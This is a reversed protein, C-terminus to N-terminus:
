KMRSSVPFSKLKAQIRVTEDVVHTGVLTVRSSIFNFWCLQIVHCDRAHPTHKGCQEKRQRSETTWDPNIAPPFSVCSPLCVTNKVATFRTVSEGYSSDYSTVFGRSTWYLLLYLTNWSATYESSQSKPLRIGVCDNEVVRFWGITKFFLHIGSSFLNQVWFNEVGVDVPQFNNQLIGPLSLAFIITLMSSDCPSKHVVYSLRFWFYVKSDLTNWKSCDLSTFVISYSHDSSQHSLDLWLISFTSHKPNHSIERTYLIPCFADDIASTPCAENWFFVCSPQSVLFKVRLDDRIQNKQLHVRSTARQPSVSARRSCRWAFSEKLLAEFFLQLEIRWRNWFCSVYLSDCCAMPHSSAIQLRRSLIALSSEKM